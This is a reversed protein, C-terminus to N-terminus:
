KNRKEFKILMPKDSGLKMNVFKMKIEDPTNESPIIKYKNLISIIYMKM